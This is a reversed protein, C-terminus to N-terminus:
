LNKNRANKTLYIPLKQRKKTQTKKPSHKKPDNFGLM